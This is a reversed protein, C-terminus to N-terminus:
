DGREGRPSAECLLLERTFPHRRHFRIQGGASWGLTAESCSGPHLPSFINLQLYALDKLASPEEM